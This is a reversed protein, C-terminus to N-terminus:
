PEGGMLGQGAHGVKVSRGPALQFRGGVGALAGIPHDHSSSRGAWVRSVTMLHINAM